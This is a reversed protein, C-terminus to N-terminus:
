ILLKARQAVTNNFQSTAIDLQFDHVLGAEQSCVHQSSQTRDGRVDQWSNERSTLREINWPLLTTKYQFPIQSRNSYYN